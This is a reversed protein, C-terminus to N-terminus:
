LLQEAISSMQKEDMWQDNIMAEFPRFNNKYSMKQCQRIFYGLYLYPLNLEKAYELQWLIAYTGPSLKELDPDFFTYIASLGDNLRDIVAIAYLRDEISFEVFRTSAHGEVLFSRYQERSPPYMDGDRHRECIYKEYLLYHDEHFDPSMIQCQVHRNKRLIRKQSKSPVFRDAPVRMPICAKCHNCHPRYFHNGSRRFGFGSLQSYIDTSVPTKPDLFMTVAKQDPLYSCDHEPTAYFVLTQLNTM